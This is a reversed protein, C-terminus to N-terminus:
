DTRKYYGMIKAAIEEKYQLADIIRREVPSSWYDVINIAAMQGEGQNREESQARDDLSYSNEFYITTLCPDKKTGMLTHGFKIAKSQGIMVSCAPDENFRLKEEDATRGEKKMHKEGRIVAPNFKKLARTLYDITPAYHAIIITKGTIYNDLRDKLDIFKPTKEFPCIDNVDRYEDYIFGSSIQQLKMHKTIVQDVTVVAGSDLWTMFEEEMEKYAKIQKQTMELEIQEYDSEISTGWDARRAFFTSNFILKHLREENKIGTIQRGKFGGMIAYTNRFQYFDVGDLKRAFRLQSYLDAVGQPTPKGTMPRTVAAQKSLEFGNIFFLSEKNKILVSEDAGMYTRDDIWQSFLEVNDKQILAEYNVFVMGENTSNMFIAFDRKRTSEFVFIPVDIGFRAAELGWTNKYKNPSLVFAKNLGFDRKFLMFENLLTPTKGVRMEMMHGWGAAPQGAHPLRRPVPLADRADRYAYGTYSRALAELQAPRPEGILLWDVGEYETKM